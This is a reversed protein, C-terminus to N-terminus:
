RFIGTHGLSYRGPQPYVALGHPGSGVPIRHLLAGTRTDFVYVVGNSRGSVWLQTGDASVGGMDPSGGGPIVWTSVVSNTAFDLLSITGANRNTVYLVKSDRSVYLGHAGSGTPIFGTVRFVDGDVTYLGGRIMDAIYFVHGTPDLKVDQPKANGGNLLITGLVTRTAVDLKLVKGSFECSAILYRGNASFDIHDIGKCVVPVSQVLAFTHADRFDLRQLREAVVIAYKGDPTFYMNYPDEVPINAGPKGTAPDIPTLSNGQDNTVYLTKLDWSPVVHQPLRGVPFEDIVQYTAPDIVDVTNSLTNPVYVRAPFGKIVPSLQNPRDAAYIDNPDLVPPMGPLANAGAATATTPSPAPTSTASSSKTAPTTSGTPPASHKGSSSCAGLATACVLALCTVLHSRRMPRRHYTRLPLHPTDDGGM